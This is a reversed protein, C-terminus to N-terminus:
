QPDVGKLKKKRKTKKRQKPPQRQLDLANLRTRLRKLRPQAEDHVRSLMASHRRRYEELTVVTEVQKRRKNKGSGKNRRKKSTIKCPTPHLAGSAERSASNTTNHVTIVDADQM